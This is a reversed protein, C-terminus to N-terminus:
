LYVCILGRKFHFKCSTNQDLTHLFDYLTDFSCLEGKQFWEIHVVDVDSASPDLSAHTKDLTETGTELVRLINTDLGFVIDPDVWGKKTRIIPTEPNLDLVDDQVKEIQESTAM